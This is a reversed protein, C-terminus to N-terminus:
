WERERYDDLSSGAELVELAGSSETLISNALERFLQHSMWPLGTLKSVLDIAEEQVQEHATLQETQGVATALEGLCSIQERLRANEHRLRKVRHSSM